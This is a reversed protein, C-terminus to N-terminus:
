ESTSVTTGYDLSDPGLPDGGFADVAAAAAAQDDLLDKFENITTTNIQGAASYNEFTAEEDIVQDRVEKYGPRSLDLEAAGSLNYIVLSVSVMILAAVITLGVLIFFRHRSIFSGQQEATQQLDDM